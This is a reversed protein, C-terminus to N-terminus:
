ARSQRRYRSPWRSDCPQELRTDKRLGNPKRGNRTVARTRRGDRGGVCAVVKSPERHLRCTPLSIPRGFLEGDSRARSRNLVYAPDTWQHDGAATRSSVRSAGPMEGASFVVVAVRPHRHPIAGSRSRSNKMANVRAKAREGRAQVDARQDDRQRSIRRKRPKAATSKGNPTGNRCTATSM